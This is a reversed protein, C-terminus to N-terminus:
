RHFFTATDLPFTSNVTTVGNEHMVNIEFEGSKMICKQNLVDCHGYPQLEYLKLANAQDELYLDSLVYGGLILFPALFIALKSHRTM